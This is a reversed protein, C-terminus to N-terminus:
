SGLHCGTGRKWAAPALDPTPCLGRGDRLDCRFTQGGGAGVRAMMKLSLRELGTGRESGLADPAPADRDIGWLNPPGAVHSAPPAMAIGLLMFRGHRGDGTPGLTRERPSWAAGVGARARRSGLHLEEVRLDPTPLGERRHRAGARVEDGDRLRAAALAGRPARPTRRPRSTTPCGSDVKEGERGVLCGFMIALTSRRLQGGSNLVGGIRTLVM